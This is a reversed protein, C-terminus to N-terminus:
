NQSRNVTIIPEMLLLKTEIQTILIELYRKIVTFDIDDYKSEYHTFDNGLVRVVDAASTALNIEKLYTGIADYLTKKVVEERPINLKNIAFDKILIEMSNRYGAGALELHNNQEATYAQNYLEIFRPSCEQIKEPLLAPKISPYISLLKTDDKSTYSYCAFFPLDCCDGKYVITLLRTQGRYTILSNSIINPTVSHGCHPCCIPINFNVTTGTSSLIKSILKTKYM